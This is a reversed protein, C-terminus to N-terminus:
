RILRIEVKKRAFQVAPGHGSEDYIERLAEGWHQPNTSMSGAQPLDRARGGNSVTPERDMVELFEVYHNSFTKYLLKAEIKINGRADEPVTFTYSRDAWNQGDAYEDEPIIFAGAAMYAAKDFGAPPIRNDKVVKNLLAFHFEQEHETVDGDGDEDLLGGFGEAIAHIEFIDDPNAVVVEGSASDVSGDEFFTGSKTWARVHLWMQRGEGYGTPLKHGTRNVIRFVVTGQEGPRLRNPKSVVRVRATAGDVFDRNDAVRADIAAQRSPTVAYGSDAWVQDIPGWLRELGSLLWTQAGAFRMPRHCDQCRGNRRNRFNSYYWESYTREIPHAMDAPVGDNDPDTLTKLFPNTVEHCSGCLEAERQFPDMVRPLDRETASFPETATVFFGGNGAAKDSGDLKKNDIMRHCVDCTVGDMHGESDLGHLPSPAQASLPSVDVMSAGWFDGRLLPDFVTAPESFGELWGVPSHCRLCFDGVVPQQDEQLGILQPITSAGLDTLPPYVGGAGVHALLDIFDQNAVNLAAFFAPDRMAHSMIGGAWDNYEIGPFRAPSRFGDVIPDLVQGDPNVGPASGRPQTSDLETISTASLQNFPLILLAFFWGYRYGSM